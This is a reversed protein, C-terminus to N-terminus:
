RRRALARKVLEYLLQEGAAVVPGSLPDSRLARMRGEGFLLGGPCLLSLRGHRPRLPPRPGDSPSLVDVVARGADLLQDVLSGIVPDDRDEWVLASGAVHLYRCSRDEYAALTELGGKMPVDLVVGYLHKAQEPTPAVGLARLAHWAQLYFRSDLGPTVSLERLTEEAAPDHQDVYRAALRFLGLVGTGDLDAAFRDLPEDGYLLERLVDAAASRRKSVFPIMM